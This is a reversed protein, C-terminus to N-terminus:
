VSRSSRKQHRSERREDRLDVSWSEQTEHAEMGIGISMGVGKQMIITKEMEAMGSEGDRSGAKETVVEEEDPSEPPLDLRYRRVSGGDGGNWFVKDNRRGFLGCCWRRWGRTCQDAAAYERRRAANGKWDIPTNYM